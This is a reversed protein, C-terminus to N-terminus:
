MTATVTKELDFRTQDSGAIKKCRYGPSSSTSKQNTTGCAEHDSVQLRPDAEGDSEVAFHHIEDAGSHAATWM